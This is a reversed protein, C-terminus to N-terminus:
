LFYLLHLYYHEQVQFAEQIRFRFTELLSTFVMTGPYRYRPVLYLFFELLSKDNSGYGKRQQPLMRGFNRMMAKV